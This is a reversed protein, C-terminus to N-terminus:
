VAFYLTLNAIQLISMLPSGVHCAIVSCFVLHPKCNAIYEDLTAHLVGFFSLGFLSKTEAETQSWSMEPMPIAFLSNPTCLNPDVRWVAEQLLGM